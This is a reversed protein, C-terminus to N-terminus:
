VHARGIQVFRDGFAKAMNSATLSRRSHTRLFSYGWSHAWAMRIGASGRAIAGHNLLYRIFDIVDGNPNDMYYMSCVANISSLEEKDLQDPFYFKNFFSALLIIKDSYLREREPNIDDALWGLNFTSQDIDSCWSSRSYHAMKGYLVPDTGVAIISDAKVVPPLCFVAHVDDYYEKIIDFSKKCYVWLKLHFDLKLSKFMSRLKYYYYLEFPLDDYQFMIISFRQKHWKYYGALAMFNYIQTISAKTGIIVDFIIGSTACEDFLNDSWEAIVVSHGYNKLAFSIQSWQYLSGGAIVLVNM